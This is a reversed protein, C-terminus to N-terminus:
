LGLETVDGSDPLFMARISRSPFGAEQTTDQSSANELM